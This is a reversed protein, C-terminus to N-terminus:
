SAKETKSKDALFKDFFGGKSSNVEIKRPKSEQAKPLYLQLVGDSYDAEIKDASITLPLTFSRKFQGFTREIRQVKSKEDTRQERKREGSITLTNQNVEISINEKKMGPLDLSMAYHDETESIECAPNFNQAEDAKFGGFFRDMEDFLDHSLNRSTWYPMLDRM